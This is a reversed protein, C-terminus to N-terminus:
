QAITMKASSSLSLSNGPMFPTHFSFASLVRVTVVGGPANDPTWTATVTLTNPDLGQALGKVYASVAAADVPNASAGGHVMSYRAGENALYATQAYTWSALGFEVIGFVITLLLTMSLASELM